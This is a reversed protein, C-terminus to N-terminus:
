GSNKPSVPLSAGQRRAIVNFRPIVNCLRRLTGSEIKKPRRKV